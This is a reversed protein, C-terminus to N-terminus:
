EEFPFRAYKEKLGPRTDRLHIMNEQLSEPVVMGGQGEREIRADDSTVILLLCLIRKKTLIWSAELELHSVAYYTASVNKKELRGFGGPDQQHSKAKGFHVSCIVLM